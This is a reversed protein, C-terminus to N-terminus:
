NAQDLVDSIWVLRIGEVEAYIEELRQSYAVIEELDLRFTGDGEAPRVYEHARRLAEIVERLRDREQQESTSL